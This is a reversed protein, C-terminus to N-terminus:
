AVLRLKTRMEFPLGLERLEATIRDQFIFRGTPLPLSHVLQLAHELCMLAPGPHTLAFELVGAAFATAEAAAHDRAIWDWDAAGMREDAVSLLEAATELM